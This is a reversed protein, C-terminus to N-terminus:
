PQVTLREILGLLAAAALPALKGARRKPGAAHLAALTERDGVDALLAFVEYSGRRLAYDLLAARLRRQEEAPTEEPRRLPAAADLVARTAEEPPPDNRSLLRRGEEPPAAAVARALDGLFGAPLATGAGHPGL